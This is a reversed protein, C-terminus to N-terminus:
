SVKASMGLHCRSSSASDFCGLFFACFLSATGRFANILFGNTGDDAGAASISKGRPPPEENVGSSVFAM